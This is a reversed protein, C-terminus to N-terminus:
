HQITPLHKDVIERIEWKDKSMEDFIPKRNAFVFVHPQNRVIPKSEYKACMFYGDKIKELSDYSFHEISRSPIYIYVNSEFEAATYLIDNKKGDLPIANYKATLYKAFSTKGVGGILDFYWYILRDHPTNEIIKIIEQEFPYTPNILRLPQKPPPIGKEIFDGTSTESKRCYNISDDWSKCAEWHITKPLGFETWRRKKDCHIVGQLHPTGNKGIECQIRYKLFIPEKSRFEDKWNEPYNNWTFFWNIKQTPQKDSPTKTNGGDARTPEIELNPESM